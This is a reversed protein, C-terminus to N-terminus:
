PLDPDGPWEIPVDKFIIEQGWIRTIGPTRRAAAKSPRLIVDVVPYQVPDFGELMRVHGLGTANTANYPMVKHSVSGVFWEHGDARWYVDFALDVALPAAVGLNGRCDWRENPRRYVDTRRSTILPAVQPDTVLTIPDDDAVVFTASLDFTRSAIAEEPTRNFLNQNPNMGTEYLYAHVTTTLTSRGPATAKAHELRWVYPQNPDHDQFQVRLNMPMGAGIMGRGHARSGPHRTNWPDDWPHSVVIQAPQGDVAAPMIRFVVGIPASKSCRADFQIAFPVANGVLVPSRPVLTADRLIGEVYRGWQEDGVADYYLRAYEVFQGWSPNWVVDADRQRDLVREITSTLRTPNLGDEEVRRLLERLATDTRSATNSLVERKLIFTPAFRVWGQENVVRWTHVGVLTGSAVLSAVAVLVVRWRKRRNGIRPPRRKQDCGCEPCRPRAPYVGVLDFRCKCCVPHDDVRRGRLGLFLLPFALIDLIAASILM